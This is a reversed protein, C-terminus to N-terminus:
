RIIIYAKKCTHAELHTNRVDECWPEMENMKALFGVLRASSPLFGVGSYVSELPSDTLHGGEAVPQALHRSAETMLM